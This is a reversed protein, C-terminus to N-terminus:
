NMSDSGKAIETIEEYSFGEKDCEEVTLQYHTKAIESRNSNLRVMKEPIASM